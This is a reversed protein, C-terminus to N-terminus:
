VNTAIRPKKASKVDHEANPNNNRISPSILTARPRFLQEIM